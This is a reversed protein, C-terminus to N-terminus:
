ASVLRSISILAGTVDDIAVVVRQNPQLIDYQLVYWLRAAANFNIDFRLNPAPVVRGEADTETLFGAESGLATARVQDVTLRPTAVAQDSARPPPVPVISLTITSTAQLSFNFQNQFSASVPQALLRFAPVFSGALPGASVRTTSSQQAVAMALKLELQVQPMQYWTAQLGLRSLLPDTDIAEQARMSNQDLAAQAESVGRGLASIVSEIPASFVEVANELPDAAM